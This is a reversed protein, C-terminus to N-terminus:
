QLISKDRFKTHLLKHARPGFPEGLFEDYVQKVAKSEHSKRVIKTVDTAYMARQRAELVSIDGAHYPQGTGGICGGPCSMVEILHYDLEGSRLKEMMVRANNLTHVVCVKLEFGNM